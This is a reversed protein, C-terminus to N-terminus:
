EVGKTYRTHYRDPADSCDRQLMVKYEKMPYTAYVCREDRDVFVTPITLISYAVSALLVVMLMGTLIDKM